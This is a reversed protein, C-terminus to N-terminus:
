GIAKTKEATRQLIVGCNGTTNPGPQGRIAVKRSKQGCELNNEKPTAVGRRFYNRQIELEQALLTTHYFFETTHLRSDPRPPPYDPCRVLLLQALFRCEVQEQHCHLDQM